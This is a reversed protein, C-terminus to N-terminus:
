QCESCLGFFLLTFHIFVTFLMVCLLRIYEYPKRRMIRINYKSGSSSKSVFTEINAFPFIHYVFHPLSEFNTTCFHKRKTSICGLSTVNKFYILFKQIEILM